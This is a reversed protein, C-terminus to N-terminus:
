EYLKCSEKHSHINAEEFDKLGCDISEKEEKNLHKWWDASQSYDEKIQRQKHIITSDNLGSIWEILDLKETQINMKKITNLLDDESTVFCGISLNYELM